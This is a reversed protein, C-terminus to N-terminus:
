SQEKGKVVFNASAQDSSHIRDPRDSASILINYM